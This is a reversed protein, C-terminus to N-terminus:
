GSLLQGNEPATWSTRKQRKVRFIASSRVGVWVGVVRTMIYRSMGRRGNEINNENM